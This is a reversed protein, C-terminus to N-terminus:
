LFKGKDMVKVIKGDRREVEISVGPASVFDWHMTSDSKGGYGMNLGFAVHVTGTVKEDTLIYGIAKRINPNYGIGLEALNMTRVPDFKTKDIEECEKFSSVLADLNKSATVKGLQLKGNKFELHVDKVLKESVRDMTIPCYLTGSGVTEHPAIFLEGAPLNAGRDGVDYDEQSIIGDDINRRRGEVKVRFDTGKDDWVHVWSADEFKSDIKKGIRMLEKPPASIGGIIIKELDPYGIGYRKAAAKTPWGAYLWKKGDKPHTLLDHIPLSAKQRAQLKERPFKEAISPNDLEEIGILMDCEKVMAVYHKPVTELTSEPIEDYVRKLLRDSTTIIYPIAGKKYCEMAIDELLTIAHIGGRVVVADGKKLNCTQIMSKACAEIAKESLVM